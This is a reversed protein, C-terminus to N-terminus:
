NDYSLKNLYLLKDMEKKFFYHTLISCFIGVFIGVLIDLPWHVGVFIRSLGNIFSLVFYIIGWKKNWFFVIMSIAFLFTAHGSPMSPGSESIFSKIGLYDFPRQQPWFFSIYKAVIGRSILAALNLEIFLMLRHHKLNKLNSDFKSFLIFYFLIFILIYLLYKALFIGFDILLINNKGFNYILYFLDINIKLM